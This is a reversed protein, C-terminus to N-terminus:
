SIAKMRETGLLEEYYNYFSNYALRGQETQTFIDLYPHITFSYYNAYLQVRMKPLSGNHDRIALGFHPVEMCGFIRVNTGHSQGLVRLEKFFSTSTKVDEKLKEVFHVDGTQRALIEYVPDGKQIDPHITVFTMTVRKVKERLLDGCTKPISRLRAGLCVIDSSADELLPKLSVEEESSPVKFMFDPNEYTRVANNIYDSAHRQGKAKVAKAVDTDAFFTLRSRGSRRGRSASSKSRTSM